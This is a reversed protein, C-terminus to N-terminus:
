RVVTVNVTQGADVNIYSIPEGGYTEYSGYRLGTVPVVAKKQASISLVTGNSSLSASIGAGNYTMRSAVRQGLQDQPPSQVPLKYYASYKAISRDILDGLLSHTGDYARMNAQHFMWPDNEGRLLYQLLVDSEKDLLEDYTVDHGWFSRYLYNYEAVWEAPYSVNYFLNTPRRPIMLIGPKFWNYLGANPSPNAMDPRSTDSVVYRIGVDYMADLAAQNYLGSIDPNVMNEKKYVTLGMTKATQNNRTLEDKTEDYTAADLNLHTYTHNIWPFEGQTQVAATSLPDGSKAYGEGNFAMHIRLGQTVSATQRNRQWAVFQQWDRGSLRYEGGLYMDNSLLIDDVQAGLYTHREGLFLGRTAWDLIGYGLAVSHVLYPAGDFTLALNERGDAYTKVLALANGSSDTLVPTTAPDASALYVYAYQISVSVTPNLYGFLQAGAPTLKANLPMQPTTSVATPVTTFGLDATPYSYYTVQRVKFSAEFDILTQWETASLASVYDGNTDYGLSSSTLIVAQYFAHTGDFLKNATLGGPNQSAIWLTYPIGVYQLSQEIAPLDVETGDASLVLVKLDTTQNAVPAATATTTLSTTRNRPTRLPRSDAHAFAPPGGRTESSRGVGRPLRARESVELQRMSMDDMESGCELATGLALVASLERFRFHSTINHM